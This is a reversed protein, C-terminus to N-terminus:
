RAGESSRHDQIPLFRRVYKMLGLDVLEEEVETVSPNVLTEAVEKVLFQALLRRGRSVQKRFADARFSKGCVRSARAALVLSNERPHLACLRLFTFCYNGPAEQQHTKLRKWSRTLLCRRWQKIWETDLISPPDEPAPVRQLDGTLRSPRKRRLFTVAHNRVAKKLYDRFRGREQRVNSLGSQLVHLFFDQAVEEADDKNRLFACLYRLVAKGYRMVFHGPEHIRSWDTEVEDLRLDAGPEPRSPQQM